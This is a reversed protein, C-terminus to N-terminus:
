KRAIMYAFVIGLMSLSIATGVLMGEYRFPLMDRVLIVAGLAAFNILTQAVNTWGLPGKGNHAVCKKGIVANLLAAAAGWVLGVLIGIFFKAM